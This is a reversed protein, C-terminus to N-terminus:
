DQDDTRALLENIAAIAFTLRSTAKQLDTRACRIENSAKAIEALLSQALENTTKNQLIDM